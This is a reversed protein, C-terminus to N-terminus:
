VLDREIRVNSEFDPLDQDSKEVHSRWYLLFGAQLLLLLLVQRTLSSSVAM